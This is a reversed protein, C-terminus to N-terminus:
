AKRSRIIEMAKGKATRIYDLLPRSSPCVYSCSGCEICDAAYNAEAMDWAEFEAANMLLTPNLGMPCANVCKACRICNRSHKRKSEEPLLVLVGSCGKTVPIDPSTVAKGMMPGGSIIKGPFEVAGSAEMLQRLPTGIRALYNSPSSVGRGTVTVIREVLPKNKQVAEYVAFATGANQVVAGASIPLAGSKVQRRIVADILQKEGGQPYRAKLSTVEVGKYPAAIRSLLAVADPKNSEIGIVAKGAGLARMLISTGVLIEEARALMLAHDSTLFPECEAANIILIQASSGPPPSLKVHTPFTAGGMGVIGAKNIAAIIEPPSLLCDRRIDPSLDIGEEWEDGEADIFIAPRKYGSADLADDIKAVTGSVPSHINASVFGAAQAILTGAKVKDGKKVVAQAPAGIHQGLPVAAQGPIAAKIVPKGASLKSAPPHIGGIRFTKQM